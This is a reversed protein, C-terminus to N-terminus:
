VLMADVAVGKGNNTVYVPRGETVYSTDGPIGMAKYITAHADIMPVPNEVANMPHHDATKGHVYGGKFGGGFFVMCSTSSFHGHFGYMKESSIVLDQGTHREAFGDPEAGAAPASAITRGFETAICVLTRSLMGRDHLDRIFQALPRDIQKKMEVMRQQGFEHMDFGQFPAYQMEVQIYRAGAELLRRALLLGNGFRGGQYYGPDRLEKPGIQSQYAAITQPTEERRFDFAKKVPSDMMARADDMSRMYLEARSSERLQRSQLASLGRLLKQRRDLRPADMGAMAHLTALGEAPDPIMFPAYNVGYFGPGIYDNIFLRENDSTDIDRGIYIYPPVNPNRRGLTRSVIAGISPAKFGAPFLYGTMLVYQAKLHIAGFKVDSSLSRLITAHHMQSAVQELGAGLQIGDASTPIAPCTSRLESGKMGPNFPTHGKHDWLDRQAMGGPLYIMVMADAKAAITPATAPEAARLLRPGAGAAIAAGSTIGAKLFERRNMM